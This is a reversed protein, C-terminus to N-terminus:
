DSNTSSPFPNVQFGSLVAAKLTHKQLVEEITIHHSERPYGIVYTWKITGDPFQLSSNSATTSTNPTSMNIDRMQLGKSIGSGRENVNETKMGKAPPETSSQIGQRKARELREKEMQARNLGTLGTSTPVAPTITVKRPAMPKDEEAATEDEESATDSLVVSPQPDSAQNRTDEIISEDDQEKQKYKKCV